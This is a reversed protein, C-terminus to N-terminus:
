MKRIRSRTKVNSDTPYVTTSGACSQIMVAVIPDLHDQDLHGRRKLLVSLFVFCFIDSSRVALEFVSPIIYLAMSAQKRCVFTPQTRM